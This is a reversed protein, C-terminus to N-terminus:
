RLFEEEIHNAIEQFSLRSIDNLYSLPYWERGNGGSELEMHISPDSDSIGVWKSVSMPLAGAADDYEIDGRTPHQIVSKVIDNEVAYETLVGLCCYQKTGDVKVHCLAGNGQKYEDSRLRRVWETIIAIQEDTFTYDSRSM